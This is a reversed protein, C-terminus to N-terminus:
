REKRMYALGGPIRIEIETGHGAESHIRVSGRLRHAREQMNRLGFHGDRGGTALVADPIGSGDDRVTIRLWSREYALELHINRAGSHRIANSLAERVILFLEANVGGDLARIRGIVRTDLFISRDALLARATHTIADPLEKTHPPTARLEAIRDRSEILVEDASDLAAEMMAAAPEAPPIRRAVAQFRLILGQVGQLLTDHLERSIREREMTRAELRDRLRRQHRSLEFRFVLCIALLAAAGLLMHFWWTEYFWPLITIEAVASEGWTAGADSSAQAEFQFTGPYMNTLSARLESGILRWNDQIGAVRFRFRTRGQRETNWPRLAIELSRTGAPFSGWKGVPIYVSDSRVGTIVVSAVPPAYASRADTTWAIGDRTAIWLKGDTTIAMSTAHPSDQLSETIGEERDFTQCDMRKGAAAEQVGNSFRAIGLPRYIWLGGHGNELVERASALTGCGVTAVNQLNGGAYLALRRDGSIWVRDEAAHLNHITGLAGADTGGIAQIGNRGAGLVAGSFYGLWVTGARDRTMTTPAEAPLSSIGSGALWREEELRYIGRQAISVWLQANPAQVAALVVHGQLEPPFPYNSTRGGEIATAGGAGAFWIAGHEDATAIEPTPAPYRETVRGDVLKLVQATGPFGVWLSNGSGSVLPGPAGAAPPLASRIFSGRSFEDMGGDTSLWINGDRDEFLAKVVNGSLGHGADKRQALNRAAGPAFRQLGDGGAWLFDDRDVLLARVSQRDWQELKRAAPSPLRLLGSVTGAWLAGDRTQALPISIGRQAPWTGAAVFELDPVAAHALVTEGALWVQGDDTALIGLMPGAPIGNAAPTLRQWRGALWRSVGQDAAVWVSGDRACHLARITGGPLGADIPINAAQADQMWSVTGDEFAIWLRGDPTTCVAMVSTALFPFKEPGSETAYNRGNFSGLGATGGVYLYGNPTQAIARIGAPVVRNETWSRHQISALEIDPEIALGLGPLWALMWLLWRSSRRSVKDTEAVPGKVSSSGVSRIM